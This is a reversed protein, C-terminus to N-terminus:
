ERLLFERLLMKSFTRQAKHQVSEAYHNERPVALKTNIYEKKNHVLDREQTKGRVGSWQEWNPTRVYESYTKKM